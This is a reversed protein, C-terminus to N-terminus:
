YECKVIRDNNNLDKRLTVNKFGKERLLEQMEKGFSENIEFYLEGGETLNNKAFDAIRKYFILPDNDEVFLALHPENDIVNKHLKEIVSKLVYPPNSVIVDFKIEGISEQTFIDAEVFSIVADNEVANIKAIELAKGSVDMAWVESEPLNKKLSIPICGSGTGIDLITTKEGESSIIWEVLEETEPRPILVHENVTFKLGYFETEGLIYQLPVGEKLKELVSNLKEGEEKTLIEEKKLLLDIRSYGFLSSFCLEMISKAELEDYLSTLEEAFSNSLIAVSSSQISM